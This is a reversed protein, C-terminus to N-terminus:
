GRLRQGEPDYFGAFQVDVPFREGAVEVEFGGQGLWASTVGGPRRVSAIAFSGDLRFGWAGSTVYGVITGDKWLPENRYLYPGEQLTAGRVRLNVLRTTIPGADREAVLAERGLFGGPKDFAVAFRLGAQLPTDDEGIDHGYHLFGKELRCHLLAFFGAHSLGHRAGAETIAGYVHRCLDTTPFIEYGLEGLYSRRLVWTRAYGLDMMRAEAFGFARPSLDEDTLSQLLDRAQPGSVSLMGYNATVDHCQVNWRGGAQRQFWARDRVQASLGTIVLFEERGIRTLTVDAEIGGRANLWFTYVSRGIPVDVDNSSLQNLAAVADPGSVLLKGYCSQDILVAADRAAVCERALNPFWSQYKLSPTSPLTAGPRDYYLPYEWGVREGMVAGAALLPDHLPMHRVGRATKLQHGPWHLTMNFGLAEVVRDRMYRSNAQFAMARQAHLSGMSVQPLGDLMWAAMTKGAGGSSLIGYSNFGAAIYLGHIDAAPGLFARSDSTFSEPGCFFLKVGVSSLAPVREFARTLLPELHEMDPPLEEFSFEEPIAAGSSPWARAAAEFFGVLLKGADEKFYTREDNVVLVPTKPSLGAIAETVIYYHEAAQLPLPVGLRKALRHTWMGGALLVRGSAIDGAETRVGVVRGDRVLIEMVKVHEFARAGAMRAGKVLATTVDLPNVQGATPFMLGGLVDAGSLLPWRQQIEPPTLYHAPVGLHQAASVNRKVLELRVPNLAVYILGNERYGTAQGTEEELTAILRSTYNALETQSKSDRLRPLLGAAHWTTGCAIRDRELLVADTIGRKALHYLTSAGIIGGGVIVVPASDPLAAAM